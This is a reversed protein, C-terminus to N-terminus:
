FLKRNYSLSVKDNLSNKGASPAASFYAVYWTLNIIDRKTVAFGHTGNIAINSGEGSPQYSITLSNNLRNNLFAKNGTLSYNQYSGPEPGGPGSLPITWSLGTSLTIPIGPTLSYNVGLTLTKTTPTGTTDTTDTYAMRNSFEQYNTVLGLTQTTPGLALNLNPTVSLVQTVSNQGFSDNATTKVQATHSYAAAINFLTAPTASITGGYETNYTTGLKDKLLNDNGLEYYLGISTKPILSTSADARVRRYDTKLYSTGLSAYGPMTQNFSLGLNMFSPTYRVAGRLAYGVYSSRRPRYVSWVLKPIQSIVPLTDIVTDSRLDRTYASGAAELDCSLVRFIAFRSNLSVVLNDHAMARTSDTFDNSATDDLAKLTTISFQEVGFRFGYIHQTYSLDLSDARKSRGALAAFRFSGPFLEIGGGYLTVGSLTLPTLTTAFDGTYIRGWKWSPNFSLQNIRQATFRDDSNYMLNLGLNLFTWNLSGNLTFNWAYPPHRLKSSDSSGDLEGYAGFDLSYTPLPVKLAHAASPLLALAVFLCVFGFSSVRVTLCPDRLGIVISHPCFGFDSHGSEDNGTMRAENVEATGTQCHPIRAELKTM